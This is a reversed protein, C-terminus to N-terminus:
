EGRPHYAVGVSGDEQLSQGQKKIAAKIALAEVIEPLELILDATDLLDTLEIGCMLNDFPTSISNQDMGWIIRAIKTRLDDM